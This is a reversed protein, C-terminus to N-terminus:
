LYNFNINYRAPADTTTTSNHMTSGDFFVVRNAISEIKVDKGIRTFGNCTNLSFIAAKCPFEYDNHPTHERLTETHPYFNVKIRMLSKLKLLRPKFFSYIYKFHNSETIDDRYVIHTQYWDWFNDECTSDPNTVYSQFYFPFQDNHVIMRQLQDFDEKPLFDDLVEIGM